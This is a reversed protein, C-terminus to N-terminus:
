LLLGGGDHVVRALHAAGAAAYVADVPGSKKRGFRWGDGRELKLAGRVHTDLLPDGTHQLSRSRVLEAFGMCVATVDGRIPKVEVGAPPWDDREELDAAIAAVPGDPFWGLAKPAIQEILAPLEARMESAAQRGAWGKVVDVRVIGDDMLAAAYMTAHQEDLSIDICVAIRDRFPDLGMEQECLAWAELDIAPNLLSVRRCHHETLFGALQEGGAAMARRAKAVLDDLEIRIGVSPNAMALARPDDPEMGEESSWEFIGLREDNGEIAAERLENLVISRDDGQNTIFWIQAMPVAQTAPEAANYAEYTHHERLEDMVLRDLTKGRGGKRNAAAIKYRCGSRVKFEEQGNARRVGNPAIERALLPVSEAIEVTANWTERATDLNTSEGLVLRRHEVYIWFLTLIGLLTTKGNQRAVLVLVQRFRPRGDPLLEGAHITLYRQWPDLEMGLVDRAFDEVDYGYSTEPTLACGCGCPGAPGMVRPKTSIRPYTHGIVPADVLAVM